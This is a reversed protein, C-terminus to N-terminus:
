KIGTNKKIWLLKKLGCIYARAPTTSWVCSFLIQVDLFGFIATDKVELIEVTNKMQM